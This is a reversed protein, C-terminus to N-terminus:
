EGSPDPLPNTLIVQNGARLLGSDHGARELEALLGEDDIFAVEPPGNRVVYRSLTEPETRVIQVAHRAAPPESPPLADPLAPTRPWFVFLLIAAAATCSIARVAARARRRGRLAGVLESAMAARRAAGKESLRPPNEALANEFMREYDTM